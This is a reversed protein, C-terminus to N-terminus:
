SGLSCAFEISMAIGQTCSAEDDLCAQASTLAEGECAGAESSVEADESCFACDAYDACAQQTANLILSAARECDNGGGAGGGDEDDGCGVSAACMLLMSTWVLAKMM